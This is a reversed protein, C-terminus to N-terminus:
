EAGFCGIIHISLYTLVSNIVKKWSVQVREEQTATFRFGKPTLFRNSKTAANGVYSDAQINPEEVLM